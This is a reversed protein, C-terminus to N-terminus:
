GGTVWVAGGLRDPPRETRTENPGGPQDAQPPYPHPAMGPAPYPEATTLPLPERGALAKGEGKDRSGEGGGTRYPRPTGRPPGPPLLGRAGPRCEAASQLRAAPPASM